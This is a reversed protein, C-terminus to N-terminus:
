RGKAFMTQKIITVRYTRQTIFSMHCQLWVHHRWWISVNEANSAMQASFEGTFEGCLPWHPPAKINGKIQTQIFLQTFLRLSTYQSSMTNMIVDNYHIWDGYCNSIAKHKCINLQSMPLWWSLIPRNSCTASSWVYRNFGNARKGM